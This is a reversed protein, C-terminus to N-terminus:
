PGIGARLALETAGSFAISCPRHRLLVGVNHASYDVRLSPTVPLREASQVVRVDFPLVSRSQPPVPPPSAPELLNSLRPHRPELSELVNVELDLFEDIDAVLHNGEDPRSSSTPLATDDYVLSKGAHPGHAALPDHPHAPIPFRAVGKFGGPQALLAGRLSAQPWIVSWRPRRTLGVWWCRAM